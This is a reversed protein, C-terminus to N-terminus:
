LIFGEWDDAYLYGLVQLEKTEEELVMFVMVGYAVSSGVDMRILRGFMDGPIKSMCTSHTVLVLNRNQRKHELMSPLFLTECNKRLWWSEESTRGFILESTQTTRLHPSNFVDALSLDFHESFSRQLNLAM